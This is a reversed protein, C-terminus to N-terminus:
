FGSQVRNAPRGLFLYFASQGGFTHGWAGYLPGLITDFGLYISAAKRMDGLSVDSRNAWTNGAELSVGAYWGRGLARPLEGMRAYLMAAGGLLQSGSIAGIPTGSLNLFGGLSFGGRDGRAHGMYGLGLFTLRGFTVPFQTAILYSQETSSPGEFWHRTTAGELLYGRRPFNPDDLTDFTAVAVAFDASDKETAFLRSSIAPRSTYREHGVGIRAVGNDGIRRGFMGVVGTTSSTIRDTRRFGNGFLDFDSKAGEVRGEVFWPSGPGLPQFVSTMLRRVDGLQLEVRWEAGWSNLWTHTHQVIFSFRGETHFDSVARGGFRLYNPGWPKEDV